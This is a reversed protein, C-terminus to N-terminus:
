HGTAAYGVGRFITSELVAWWKERNLPKPQTRSTSSWWTTDRQIVWTVANESVEAPVPPVWITEWECTQFRLQPTFSQAPPPTPLVSTLDELRHSCFSTYRKFSSASSTCCWRRQGRNLQDLRSDCPSSIPGVEQLSPPMYMYHLYYSNNSAM